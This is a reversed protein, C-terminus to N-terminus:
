PKSSGGGRYAGDGDGEASQASRCTRAAATEIRARHLAVVSSLAEFQRRANEVPGLASLEASFVESVVIPRAGIEALVDLFGLLDIAGDGCLRRNDRGLVAARSPAAAADNLQVLDIWDAPVGRLAVVSPGGKQHFWHWTDLVLGLNGRATREILVLVSSLDPLGSEPVFEVSVRLGRNAALDCLHGLGADSETEQDPKPELIVAIVTKAGAHAAVDLVHGNAGAVEPASSRRWDLIAVEAAPIALGRERHCDFYAASSMGDAVAWDHQRTSMSVAGFGSEAVAAVMQEVFSATTPSRNPRLSAASVVLPGGREVIPRLVPDSVRYRRWSPTGSVRRTMTGDLRCDESLRKRFHPHQWSARLDLVDAAQLTSRAM